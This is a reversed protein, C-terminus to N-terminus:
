NKAVCEPVSGLLHGRGRRHSATTTSATLVPHALPATSTPSPVAPGVCSTTTTTGSGPSTAPWRARPSSAGGAARRDVGPARRLRGPPVGGPRRARCPHDLGHRRASARAGRVARGRPPADGAPRGRAVHARFGCRNACETLRAEKKQFSDLLRSAPMEPRPRGGEVFGTSVVLRGNVPDGGHALVLDPVGVGGLAVVGRAGAHERGLHEPRRDVAEGLEGAVPPRELEGDSGAPHGDRQGLAAHGDGADLQGRGIISWSRVFTSSAVIGTTTPSM